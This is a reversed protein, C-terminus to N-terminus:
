TRSCRTAWASSLIMIQTCRVCNACALILPVSLMFLFPFSAGKKLRDLMAKEVDDSAARKLLLRKALARQYFTRFVDKDDTSRYLGLVDELEKNYEKEERGAQGQRLLRDVHKAIMEAPKLRRSKFGTTFADQLAYNFDPSSSFSTHLTTTAFHKFSILRSVMEDDRPQDEVIRKVTDQTPPRPPPPPSHILHTPSKPSPSLSRTSVQVTNKFQVLLDKKGNIRDFLNYMRKLGDMDRKNM